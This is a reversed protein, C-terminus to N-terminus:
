QRSKLLGPSATQFRRTCEWKPYNTETATPQSFKSQAPEGYSLLLTVIDPPKSTRLRFSSSTVLISAAHVCRPVLLMPNWISCYTIKRVQETHGCDWSKTFFEIKYLANLVASITHSLRVGNRKEKILTVYNKNAVNLFFVM